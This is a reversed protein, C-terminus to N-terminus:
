HSELPVDKGAKVECQLDQPQLTWKEGSLGESPLLWKIIALQRIFVLAAVSGFVYACLCEVVLYVNCACVSGCVRMAFVFYWGGLSM